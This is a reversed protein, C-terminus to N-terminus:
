QGRDVTQTTTPREMLPQIVSALSKLLQSPLASTFKYRAAEPGAVHATITGFFRDGIFFVFTATRAMVRDAYRHDGTGTKGGIPLVQGDPATFAGRVRRATGNEVVDQLARRVTATIEPALVREGPKQDFGLVAEYPTGTAFHLREVRLTPVRIGDSVIIGMLDALAGPRDASSGIATAYSPTLSDFPYGLRKWSKHIRQFAEAELLIRIRTDQAHKRSTKFLWAYTEQREDASAQLVESRKAEPHQQLHEVLWLQLPHVGTIYGRDALIWKDKAYKDFLREVVQDTLESKPLRDRMFRTFEALSAKPRVSLFATALRHPVPRVRTALLALAEDPTKGRYDTYFRNLFHSGEKDAFQELYAQRAPNTPDTLLTGGADEAGEAVYYQVIDRMMRIFPLNISSRLSETVTPISSNDKDDFNVFSHVGGGTFFREGPNASYRREMAAALLTGLSRDAADSLYTSVWRTLNDTADLSVSRLQQRPLHGYRGHLESIIELYTILTRLKATSGLDLKAGENIDLPRDLNDAQIRVYNANPGREYLMVSYIVKHLDNKGADLLRFGAMGLTEIFGPENLRSLVEVMRQQTPGDLSTEATLDYRDLQYLSPVNLMGLLRTRIANAAKQEVFSVPPPLPAENRFRLKIGLAADRLDASITGQSALLRLHSDALENLSNRDAILYHTPRRQALLLSLVQKYVEAQRLRELSNRPAQKLIANADKFDTGYWAWLGDGLGNVEGFGLRATLPTSNLYDVVIRRRAFTTDQGDLYARVSASVMQRLKETAGSTQGDPSHRYKEIQTALTSGGPIRMGPNLWQAPLGLIALAFRDWEVAPNRKPYTPDLLERNEIFLLTGVVLPPVSDFDDYVREPYRATYLISGNRDKLTLGARTKERFVAFGGYEVFDALEPSTRAQQEIRFGNGTLADIAKPIETYGLRENYPGQTPYKVLTSAGPEVQYTLKEGYKTLVGAQLWSTRMEQYGVWGTGAAAAVLVGCILWREWGFRRM